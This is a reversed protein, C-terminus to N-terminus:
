VMNLTLNRQLESSNLNSNSKKSFKNEFNIVNQGNIFKGSKLFNKFIKLYSNTNKISLDNFPINM